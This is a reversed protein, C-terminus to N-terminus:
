RRRAARGVYLNQAITVEHAADAQLDLQVGDAHGVCLALSQGDCPYATQAVCQDFVHIGLDTTGADVALITHPHVDPIFEGMGFLLFTAVAGHDTIDSFECCQSFDAGGFCFHEWFIGHIDRQLEPEVAVTAESQWENGLNNPLVTSHEHNYFIYVCLALRM